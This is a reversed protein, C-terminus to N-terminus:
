RVEGHAKERVISPPLYPTRPAVTRWWIELGKGVIFRNTRLWELAWEYRLELRKEIPVSPDHALRPPIPATVTVSSLPAPPPLLLPEGDRAHVLQLVRRLHRLGSAASKSRTESLLGDIRAIDDPAVRGTRLATLVAFYAKRARRHAAWVTPRRDDWTPPCPLRFRRTPSDGSASTGAFYLAPARMSRPSHKTVIESMLAASAM